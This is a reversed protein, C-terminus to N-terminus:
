RYGTKDPPKGADVAEKIYRWCDPTKGKAEHCTAETVGWIDNVLIDLRGCEARIRAVLWWRGPGGKGHVIGNGIGTSIRPNM